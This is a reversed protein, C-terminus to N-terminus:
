YYRAVTPARHHRGQMQIYLERYGHERDADLKMMLESPLRFPSGCEAAAVEIFPMQAWEPFASTAYNALNLKRLRAYVSDVIVGATAEDEARASQGAAKVGIHELLMTIMEARLKTAM